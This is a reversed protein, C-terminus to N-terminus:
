MGARGVPAVHTDSSAARRLEATFCQECHLLNANFWDAAWLRLEDLSASCIKLSEEGICPEEDNDSPEVETCIAHHLMLFNSSPPSTTDVVFGNRNQTLWSLYEFQKEFIIIM